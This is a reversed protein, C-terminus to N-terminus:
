RSSYFSSYQPAILSHIDEAAKIAMATLAHNRALTRVAEPEEAIEHAFLCLDYAFLSWPQWGAHTPEEYIREGNECSAEFLTNRKTGVKREEIWEISIGGSLTVLKTKLTFGTCQKDGATNTAADLELSSSVVTFPGFLDFIRVLRSIGAFVPSGIEDFARDFATPTWGSRLHLTACRVPSSARELKGKLIKQGASYLAMWEVHLILRKAEALQVLQQWELSSMAPPYEVLVHYGHELSQM